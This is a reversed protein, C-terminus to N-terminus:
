AVSAVLVLRSSFGHALLPAGEERGCGQGGCRAHWVGVSCMGQPLRVAVIVLGTPVPDHAALHGEVHRHRKTLHADLVQVAPVEVILHDVVIGPQM